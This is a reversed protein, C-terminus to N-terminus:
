GNGASLATKDQRNREALSRGLTPAGTGRRFQKPRGIPMRSVRMCTEKACAAIAGPRVLRAVGKCRVASV